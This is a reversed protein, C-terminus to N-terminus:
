AKAKRRRLALLGFAMLVISSPEPTGGLAAIAGNAGNFRWFSNNDGPQFLNNNGTGSVLPSASLMTGAQSGIHNAGNWPNGTGGNDGADGHRDPAGPTPFNNPAAGAVNGDIFWGWNQTGKMGLWVNTGFAGTSVSPFSLQINWIFGNTLGPVSFIATSGGSTTLFQAATHPNSGGTDGYIGFQFTQPATADRADLLFHVSNVATAGPRLTIANWFAGDNPTLAVRFPFFEPGNLGLTDARGWHDYVHNPDNQAYAASRAAGGIALNMERLQGVQVDAALPALGAFAPAAVMSVLATVMLFKKM